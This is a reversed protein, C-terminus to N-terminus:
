NQIGANRSPPLPRPPPPPYRRVYGKGADGPQYGIGYIRFRYNTRFHDPTYTGPDFFRRQMMEM